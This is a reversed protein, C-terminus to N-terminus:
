ADILCSVLREFLKVAFPIPGAMVQPDLCRLFKVVPFKLPSKELLKETTHVLFEKCNVQFEHKEAQSIQKKHCCWHWSWQQTKNHWKINGQYTTASSLVDSKVFQAMVSRVLKELDLALFPILPKESRYVLLFPQFDQAVSIWFHHKAKLLMNKVLVYCEHKKPETKNITAQTCYEKM